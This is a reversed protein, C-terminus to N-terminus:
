YGLSRAAATQGKVCFRVMKYDTGWEQECRRRINDSVTSALTPKTYDTPVDVWTWDMGANNCIAKGNSNTMANSKAILANSDHILRQRKVSGTAPKFQNLRHRTSFAYHENYQLCATKWDNSNVAALASELITNAQGRLDVSACAPAALLTVAAFAAFIKM